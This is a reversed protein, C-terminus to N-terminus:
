RYVDARREKPHALVRRASSHSGAVDPNAM